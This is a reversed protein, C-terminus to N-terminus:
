VDIEEQATMTKPKTSPSPPLPVNAPCLHPQCAKAKMEGEGESEPRGHDDGSDQTVPDVLSGLLEYLSDQSVTCSLESVSSPRSSMQPSFNSPLPDNRSNIGVVRLSVEVKVEGQAIAAKRQAHPSPLLLIDAPYPHPPYMEGGEEVEVEVRVQEGSANVLSELVEYLSGQSTTCSLESAFSPRSPMNLSTTAYDLPCGSNDRSPPTSVRGHYNGRREMGQLHTIFGELWRATRPTHVQGAPPYRALLEESSRAGSSHSPSPTILPSNGGAYLGIKSGISNNSVAPELTKLASSSSATYELVAPRDKPTSTGHNVLDSGSDSLTDLDPFVPPFGLSCYIDIISEFAPFSADQLSTMNPTLRDSTHTADVLPEGSASPHASNRDRSLFRAFVLIAVSCTISIWGLILKYTDWLEVLDIASSIPSQVPADALIYRVTAPPAPHAPVFIKTPIHSARTPQPRGTRNTVRAYVADVWKYIAPIRRSLNFRTPQPRKYSRAHYIPVILPSYRPMPAPAPTLVLLLSELVVVSDMVKDPMTTGTDPLSLIRKHHDGMSFMSILVCFIVLFFNFRM